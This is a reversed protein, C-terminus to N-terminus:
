LLAERLVGKELRYVRSCNGVTSLRHAVIIVTKLGQLANVSRM